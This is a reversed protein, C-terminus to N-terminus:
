NRVNKDLEERVAVGISEFSYPKRLYRGVGLEHAEKVRETESFGSALIAKQLPHIAIVQKYTDLGDMGPAMLMDLILLDVTKQKLFNVAEEGSSVCAVSYNLRKLLEAAIERQEAVDDVVLISEGKGMFSEIPKKRKAESLDQPTAPFYLMVATGRGPKSQIDVYGKHDKVTGWVVAMGLGTGSRGMKKKSYFPEFIREIDEDSMGEGTDSVSLLAYDGPLITEYGKIPHDLHINRTSIRIQGGEAMAEAANSVLNMLAKFLHVQSGAMNLLAPDLVTETVVNQHFSKLRAYEPSAMYDVAIRNLNTIITMAVGRRALTLLDQVVAAAKEGSKQITLISKRMPSDAPIGMLLLEPYSTLGSLINNLDHAVGGALTGIAEMKRARQLQIKLKEKEMQVSKRETTDRVLGRYGVAKSERNLILSISTVGFRHKGDKRTFEWELERKSIGTRYVENFARFIKDINEQDLYAKYNLGMLEDATYGVIRCMAENFFTYDGSLSCEFYGDEIKELISRYRQESERLAQEAHIREEIELKLKANTETLVRNQRHLKNRQSRLIGATTASLYAVVTLLSVVILFVLVQDNLPIVRNSFLKSSPLYHLYTLAIMIGYNLVCLGVVVYSHRRPAAVGVYAIWAAYVLSLYTAEIGGCFYIVATYGIAEMQYMLITVAEYSRKTKIAKFLFLFPPNLLVLYLIAASFGYLHYGQLSGYRYAILGFGWMVLSAIARAFAGRRQRTYILKRKDNSLPDRAPVSKNTM